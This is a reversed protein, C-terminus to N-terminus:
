LPAGLQPPRVLLHPLPQHSTHVPPTHPLPLSGRLEAPLWRFVEKPETLLVKFFFFIMISDHRMEETQEFFSNNWM